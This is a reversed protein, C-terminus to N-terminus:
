LLASDQAAIGNRDLSDLMLTLAERCKGKSRYFSVL